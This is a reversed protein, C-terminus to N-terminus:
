TLGIIPLKNVKCNTKHRGLTAQGIWITLTPGIEELLYKETERSELKKYQEM